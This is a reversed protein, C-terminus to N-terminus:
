VRRAIFAGFSSEFSRWKSFNHDLCTPRTKRIPFKVLFDRNKARSTRAEISPNKSEKKVKPYFEDGDRGLFEFSESYCGCIKKFNKFCKQFLAFFLWKPSIFFQGRRLVYRLVVLAISSFTCSFILDIGNWQTKEQDQPPDTKSREWIGLITWYEFGLAFSSFLNFFFYANM